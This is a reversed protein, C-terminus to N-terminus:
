VKGLSPAHYLRSQHEGAGRGGPGGASSRDFAEAPSEIAISTMSSAAALTGKVKADKGKKEEQSKEDGKRSFYVAVAAGGM